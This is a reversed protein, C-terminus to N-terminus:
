IVDFAVAQKNTLNNKNEVLNLADTNARRSSFHDDFNSKMVVDNQNNLFLNKNSENEAEKHINPTENENSPAEITEDCAQYLSNYIKELLPLTQDSHSKCLEEIECVKRFYFDREKEIEKAVTTLEQNDAQMQQCKDRLVKNEQKLTELEQNDAIKASNGNESSVNKQNIRTNKEETMNTVEDDSGENKNRQTNRRPNVDLKTSGTKTTGAVHTTLHINSANGDPATSVRSSNGVKRANSKAMGSKASGSFEKGGKSKSRAEVADYEPNDADGNYVEHAYKYMWQFFELNDQYRGLILKQVPIPKEIQMKDFATQL